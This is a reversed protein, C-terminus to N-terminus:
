DTAKAVAVLIVFAGVFVVVGLYNLWHAAPRAAGSKDLSKLEPYLVAQGGAQMVSGIVPVITGVFLVGFVEILHNKTLKKIRQLAESAKLNEDFVPFVAMQYRLAARIGPIIFLFLGGIIKLFSIAEIGAITWFRQTVAGFAERIGTTQKRSTKWAVYTTIGNIYVSAVVVLLFVVLLVSTTFAVFAADVEAGGTLSIGSDRSTSRDTESWVQSATGMGGLILLIVAWVLNYKFIAAM